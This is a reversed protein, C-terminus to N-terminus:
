EGAAGGIDGWIRSFIFYTKKLCCSLNLSWGRFTDGGRAEKGERKEFDFRGEGTTNEGKRGKKEAQKQSSLPVKSTGAGKEGATPGVGEHSKNEL